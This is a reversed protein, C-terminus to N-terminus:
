ESDIEENFYAHMKEKVFQLDNDIFQSDFLGLPSKALNVGTHQTLFKFEGDMVLSHLVCTFMGELTIKNDLMKGITKVKTNGQQDIESHTLVFCHLDDRTDTLAKIVSWTHNALESYKDYGKELCRNMFENAMLYQFDDIILTTVEPRRTNVANILGLVKRYDDTIFYNKKEENFRKKYGKFPLPKGLISIIYTTAPDLNRISTSKGSGSVGLVLTTNSM